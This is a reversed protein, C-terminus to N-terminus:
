VPLAKTNVPRIQKKNGHAQKRVRDMMAYLKKAGAKSSGGGLNSVVDSSVVFEGDALKAPQKDGIIAPIDDSLGDGGGSLFRGGAMGGESFPMSYNAALAYDKNRGAQAQIARQLNIDLTGPGVQGRYGVDMMEPRAMIKRDPTLMANGSIGARINGGLADFNTGLRGSVALPASQFGLGEINQGAPAAKFSADLMDLLDREKRAKPEGGESYGPMGGAAFTQQPVTRGIMSAVGSQDFNTMPTQNMMGTQDDPPNVTGGMAFMYPNQSVADKANTATTNGFQYPNAQMAENAKSRAADIAAMQTAYEQNSIAGSAQQQNLWDQQAQLDALGMGGFATVAAAKSPSLMIDGSAVLKDAQAIAAKPDTILDYIGGATKQTNELGKSLANSYTDPNIAAQGAEKLSQLGAEVPSSVANYARELMSPQTARIDAIESLSPTSDITPPVFSSPPAQPVTPSTGALGANVDVMEPQPASIIDGLESANVPMSGPIAGEAGPTLNAGRAYEGLEAMGYAMAGGMMAGKLNFKGGKHMVGSGNLAGLGAMWIPPVGAMSGAVAAVTGWGGPIAKGVTKDLGVLAQDIPKVAQTAANSLINIGPLNQVTKIAPTVVNSIARVPNLSGLSLFEPLGTTPNITGSGGMAKLLAAEQPNIHAVMTDGYRGHKALDQALSKIGHTM